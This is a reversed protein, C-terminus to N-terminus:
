HTLATKGSLQKERSDWLRPADTHVQTAEITSTGPQPKTSMKTM